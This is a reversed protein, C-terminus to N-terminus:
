EDPGGEDEDGSEENDSNDEDSPVEERTRPCGTSRKRKGDDYKNGDQNRASQYNEADKGTYHAGESESWDYENTSVESDLAYNPHLDDEIDVDKGYKGQLAHKVVKYAEKMVTDEDTKDQKGNGSYHDIAHGILEYSGGLTEKVVDYAVKRAHAKDYHSHGSPWSTNGSSLAAELGGMDVHQGMVTQGALYSTM